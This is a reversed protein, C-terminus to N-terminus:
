RANWRFRERVSPDIEIGLGPRRPVPLRGGVPRLPETVLETRLPQNAVNFELLAPQDLAALFHATAAMLVDSSWCHPVVWAGNALARSAIERAVSIGGCRALDPQIIPLHGRELLDAFGAVGSEREGAAIPIPSRDVLRAYGDLDTADLPEELFSLGLYETAKALWLADEVAMPVGVDLMLRVDPGVLQRVEGLLTVDDAPSLGLTGWGFKIARHGVSMLEEARALVEGSTGPMLQSAYVDVLDTRAGGLLDHLPKGAVKGALDWLALDIGSMAHLVLGRGGLVSGCHTWMRRWLREIDGPDEGILLGALGQVAYQSIPAEIIAQIATPMTHAEGVGTLGEDTHVEILLMDQLGDGNATVNPLRLITTEVASIRM